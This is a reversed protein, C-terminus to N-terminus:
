LRIFQLLALIEISLLRSATGTARISSSERHGIRTTNLYRELYRQFTVKRGIRRLAAESCKTHLSLDM